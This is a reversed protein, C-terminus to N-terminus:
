LIEGDNNDPPIPTCLVKGESIDNIATKVAKHELAVGDREADEILQRARKATAIVLSYVNGTNKVLSEVSPYLV